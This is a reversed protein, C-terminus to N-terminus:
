LEECGIFNTWFKPTVPLLVELDLGYPEYSYSIPSAAYTPSGAFALSVSAGAPVNVNWDVDTDTNLDMSKVVTNNIALNFYNPGSWITQINNHLTCVISAGAPAGAILMLGDVITSGPVNYFWYGDATASDPPSNGSGDFWLSKDSLLNSM